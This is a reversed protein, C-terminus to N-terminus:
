AQPCGEYHQGWQRQDEGCACVPEQHGCSCTCGSEAGEPECDGHRGVYCRYSPASGWLNFPDNRDRDQRNNRAVKELLRERQVRALTMSPTEGEQIYVPTCDQPRALLDFLRERVGCADVKQPASHLEDAYRGLDKRLAELEERTERLAKGLRRADERNLEAQKKWYEEDSM